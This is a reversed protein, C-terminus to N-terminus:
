LLRFPIGNEAVFVNGMEDPAFGEQRAVYARAVGGHSVLLGVGERRELDNIASSVRLSFARPDEASYVSVMEEFNIDRVPTGSMLGMDWETVRQDVETTLQLNLADRVLAATDFARRLPSSVIWSIGSPLLRAAELAQRRGELTLPSDIGSGAFLGEANTESEGHRLFWLSM